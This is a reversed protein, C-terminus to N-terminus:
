MTTKRAACKWRATKLGTGSLGPGEFRIEDGVLKGPGEFYADARADHQQYFRLFYEGERVNIVQAALPKNIHFYHGKPADTWATSIGEAATLATAALVMASLWIIPSKM